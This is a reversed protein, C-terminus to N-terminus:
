RPLAVKSTAGFYLSKHTFSNVKLLGIAIQICILIHYIKLKM